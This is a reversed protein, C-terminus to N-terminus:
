VIKMFNKVMKFFQSGNPFTNFNFKRKHKALVTKFSKSEYIKVCFIKQEMTWPIIELYLTDWFQHLWNIHYHNIVSVFAIATMQLVDQLFHVREALSM